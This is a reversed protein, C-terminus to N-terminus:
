PMVAISTVPFAPPNSGLSGHFPVDGFTFAGGDEAVMLYGRGTPSAVMGSIPKNLAIDGTSGLFPADFAFIGGDSAVLWYGAGDPDPAMSMVPKNLPQGGMSGYFRADGFSFIGGDSGVMWYGRGSPTAVSDLIPGNLPTSGMDGYWQADGFALARGRDTFVWYGKGDPMASLSVPREDGVLRDQFFANTAYGYGFADTDCYIFDVFNRGDLVWYGRGNPFPEIDAGYEGISTFVTTNGCHPADGFVYVQGDFGLMWYGSGPHNTRAGAPVAPAILGLVLLLSAVIARRSHTM